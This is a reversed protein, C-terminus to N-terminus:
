YSEQLILIPVMANDALQNSMSKHFLGSLFNYNKHVLCLLDVNGKEMTQLLATKVNDSRISHFTVASLNHDLNVNIENCLDEESPKQPFGLNSIHNVLVNAGFAESFAVVYRLAKKYMISLDAAFITQHIDKVVFKKPIVFLPCGINELIDQMQSRFMVKEWEGTQHSGIIVLDIAEDSTQDFLLEIISGKHMLCHVKIVETNTSILLRKSIMDAIAFLGKKENLQEISIELPDDDASNKKAAHAFTIDAGIKLAINMASIALFESNVSNDILVFINKM